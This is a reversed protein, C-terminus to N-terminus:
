VALPYRDAYDFVVIGEVCSTSWSLYNTLRSRRRQQFQSIAGCIVIRRRTSKALVM